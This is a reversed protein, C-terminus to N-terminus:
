DAFISSILQHKVFVFVIGDVFHARLEVGRDRVEYRRRLCFSFIRIVFQNIAQDTTKVMDRGSFRRKFSRDHM